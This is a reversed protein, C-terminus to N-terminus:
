SKPMKILDNHFASKVLFKDQFLDRATKLNEIEWYPIRYLPIGHALCYSNKRRDREQAKLFDERKKYFKSTFKLHQEGDVEILVNLSPIYFDFRYKGNRLDKYQKEREFQIAAAQLIKIVAAEYSSTKYMILFEIGIRILLDLTM